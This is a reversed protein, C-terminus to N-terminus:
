CAHIYGQQEICIPLSSQGQVQLQCGNQGTCQLPRGWSDFSLSSLGAPILRLSVTGDSICLHRADNICGNTVGIRDMAITLANEPCIGTSATCHMAQQQARRLLAIAQERVLYESSGSLSFFRPVLSIALVGLIIIVVILEVLSFGQPQRHM